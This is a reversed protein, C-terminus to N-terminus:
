VVIANLRDLARMGLESSASGEKRFADESGETSCIDKHNHHTQITCAAADYEQSPYLKRDKLITDNLVGPVFGCVATALFANTMESADNTRYYGFLGSFTTLIRDIM